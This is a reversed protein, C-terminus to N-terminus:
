TLKSKDKLAQYFEDLEMPSIYTTTLFSGKYNYRIKIRRRALAMSSWYNKEISLDEILDYRISEKLVGFRIDLAEQNMEYSNFMYISVLFGNVVVLLAITILQYRAEIDLVSYISLSVIAILVVAYIVDIRSRDKM